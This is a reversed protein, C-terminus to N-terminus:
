PARLSRPRRGLRELLRGLHADLPRSTTAALQGSLLGVEVELASRQDRLAEAQGTLAEVQARLAASRVAADKDARERIAAAEADARRREERATGLMRVVDDRAQLRPPPPSLGSRRVTRRREQLRAAACEIAAQQRLREVHEAARQEMAAVTELRSEAVAFADTSTQEAAALIRRARASMEQVQDAAEAIMRGAESEAAGLVREARAVTVQAQASAVFRHNEAEARMNEAEDAAAALMSGLHRSLGLFEAGGSSHSLQERAEDLAARTVLHSTLLHERERDATALEDEAWQVYTDVQFRDYGAVARRFMPGAQLVTPLDGSVHPRERDTAESDLVEDLAWLPRGAGREAHLEITM